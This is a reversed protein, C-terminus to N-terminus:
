SPTGGQNYEFYKKIFKKFAQARHSHQLKYAPGIEALSLSQGKPVFIPDYGFGHQGKPSKSIEGQLDGEFVWEEGQPTKVVLTCVFKANRNELPRISMMKLLKAMNESDSATPGAYRATHVGPLGGLGEVLLGSDEGLVWDKHRVAYLSNAKIKANELFTKGTEPRPTFGKIESQTHLDLDNIQSLLHKYESVKGKNGTALWIEM